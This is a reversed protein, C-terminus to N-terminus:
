SAPEKASKGDCAMDTPVISITPQPVPGLGHRILSQTTAVLDSLSGQSRDWWEPTGNLAGMVLKVAARRNLDGRIQGADYATDILQNWLRSYARSDDRLRARIDEPLQGTNRTVATAFHSLELEVELHAAAAACLRELPETEPALDDLTTVVHERLRAQGVTMVEAILEHRSPFYYYVAPARLEATAAIENLRTASYGKNSLVEAAAFLIRERTPAPKTSTM